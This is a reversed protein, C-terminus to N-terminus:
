DGSMTRSTCCLARCQRRDRSRTRSERPRGAAPVCGSLLQSRDDDYGPGGGRIQEYDGDRRTEYDGDRKM